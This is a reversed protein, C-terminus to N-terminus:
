NERVAPKSEHLERLAKDAMDPPLKLNHGLIGELSPVGKGVLTRAIIVTPQGRFLRAKDFADVIEDIDHGDIKLVNWNFAIFKDAVPEMNMVLETDGEVQMQNWDIIMCLNDLGYHGAAMTAEWVQGEQLEGDGLMVYCRYSSKKRKGSLAMGVAVSLGQGLSGCTAEVIPGLRESMNIEYPSGDQCYTTLVDSPLLGAQALAAGFIASNHATSLLFRDRDPWNPEDKRYNLERGYLAAFLDAAGLGQQVYGQGTGAVLTVVNCRLEYAMLELSQASRKIPTDSMVNM